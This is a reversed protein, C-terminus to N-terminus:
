QAGGRGGLRLKKTPPNQGWKVMNQFFCQVHKYLCLTEIAPPPPPSAYMYRSLGSYLSFEYSGFAMEGEGTYIYTFMHCLAMNLKRHEGRNFDACVFM